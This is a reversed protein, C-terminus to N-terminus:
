LLKRVEKSQLELTHMRDLMELPPQSLMGHNLRRSQWMALMTPLQKKFVAPPAVAYSAVYLGMGNGVPGAAFYGFGELPGDGEIKYHLAAANLNPAGPARQKEVINLRWRKGVQRALQTVTAHTAAVPDNLDNVVLFHQEAGFQVASPVITSRYQGLMLAAGGPGSVVISDRAQQALQWGPAIGISGAGDAFAQTKLRNQM